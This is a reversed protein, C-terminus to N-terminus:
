VLGEIELRIWVRHRRGSRQTRDFVGFKGFIRRLHADVTHSTVGLIEAIESNSKGRAVWGLVDTERPSLRPPPGFKMTILECFRLHAKQCAVQLRYTNQLVDVPLNESFGLGMCGNRASPGFVPVGLWGGPYIGIIADALEVARPDRAFDRYDVQSALFPRTVTIAHFVFPNHRYMQESVYDPLLTEKYEGIFVLAHDADPAGLPPLHHYSSSASGFSHLFTSLLQVLDRTNRVIEVSEEFAEFRQDVTLLYLSM